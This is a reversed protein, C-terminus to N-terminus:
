KSEYKSFYLEKDCRGLLIPQDSYKDHCFKIYPLDYGYINHGCIISPDMERVWESWAQIMDSCDEYDECSFLKRTIKGLKRFTNSILIVKSEANHDLGTAEIDFSLISIDTHKCGKYFTYGDKVQFAEVQNSITYIEKYPLKKKDEMYDKFKTYQKGFKFYQEGELRHWGAGFPKNALIWFKHSAKVIDLSGDELERFITAVDDAIEISVIRELPNKGYILKNDYM